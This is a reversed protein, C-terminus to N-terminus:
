CSEQLRQALYVLHWSLGMLTLVNLFSSYTNFSKLRRNLKVVRSKATEHTERERITTATTSPASFATTTGGRTEAPSATNTTTTTTTHVPEAVMDAIDRGRGEEKELKLREFMAKSARPELFFMNALVFALSALLNFGQFGDAVGRKRDFFHGLWSLCTGYSVTRFYVPYIRSQVMGFQQRPLARALVHSSIFTVWICIGYTTAFALLHVLTMVSRVYEPSVLYMWADYAVDRARHVIETLNKKVEEAVQSGTEEMEKTKEMLGERAEKVKEALDEGKSKTKEMAQKTKGVARKVGGEMNEALKEGVRKPKEVAEEGVHKQKEFARKGAEEVKEALKEGSFKAKHVAAQGVNKAKEVAAQGVDKAKELADRGGEKVKATLEEAVGEAKEVSEKGVKKAKKVTDEGVRKAKEVSEKGDVGDKAGEKTASTMDAVKDKARGFVSSIKQTCKGYIDCVLDKAGHTHHDTHPSSTAEPTSLGEGLNPLVSVTEKLKEKLEKGVESPLSSGEHSLEPVSKESDPIRVGEREYEVVIVRHGEKLILNEKPNDKQQPPPSWVSAASLTAILLSLALINIM